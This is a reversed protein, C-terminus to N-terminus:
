RDWGSWWWTVVTVFCLIALCFNASRPLLWATELPKRPMYSFRMNLFDVSFLPVFVMFSPLEITVQLCFSAILKQLVQDEIQTRNTTVCSWIWNWKMLTWITGQTEEGNHGCHVMKVSWFGTTQVHSSSAVITFWHEVVRMDECKVRGTM